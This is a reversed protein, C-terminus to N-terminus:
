DHLDESDPEPLKLMKQYIEFHKSGLYTGFLTQLLLVAYMKRVIPKSLTTWFRVMNGKEPMPASSYRAALGANVPLALLIPYIGGGIVGVLGGRLLACTPCDLDGALLPNSVTANYLAVTTLFPLVAMPLGSTFVGQTVNLVRRYLSNAILGALGANGGLYVPGYAFLKRDFDPLREFRKALMEMIMARSMPQGERIDKLSM